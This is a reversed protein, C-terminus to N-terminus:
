GSSRELIESVVTEGTGEHEDEPDGTEPAPTCVPPLEDVMKALYGSAAEDLEGASRFVERAFYQQAATTRRQHM